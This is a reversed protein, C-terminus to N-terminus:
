KSTTTTTIRSFFIDHVVHQIFVMVKADKQKNNQLKNGEHPNAFGCKGLGLIKLNLITKIRISWFEYTEVKFVPILPQEVSLANNSSAM